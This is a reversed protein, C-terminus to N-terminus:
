EYRLAEIPDLRSAKWAPYYGFILGVSVSVAVAIVAATLSPITAWGLIATVTMSAGRGLAIGAIGGFLCLVVAEMLFQRLIDRTRAGAAMRIGIERTRETVSVLMINMIGVGGVALSILAVCLLLSTMLATTSGLAKSVETWNRIGFDDPQGERLRHRQRLLETIQDIAEPIEEPSYASAYIDDLDAFRVLQPTDALQGASRPPYLQQQLTPYLNSLTNVQNLSNNAMAAALDAFALKSSNIRFKVTTWPAIVLDDQDLGMMNAGKCRLVGLVRLPVGRVRIEKGVPSENGFLHRAPTQGMLCVSAAGRVDSDTFLEGEELDTWSRVQFYAPSTGLIKWPQWNRNGYIVQLRCDVGPAAWRVATCDRLIAECDQPTLTLCTGSGSHVGSSSSSGPEIQVFNAGLSAITQQVVFSTGKGIEMQVVVSAIGIVMGICTLVSRLRNRRLGRLATRLTQFFSRGWRIEAFSGM